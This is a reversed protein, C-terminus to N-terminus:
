VRIQSIRWMWLIGLAQLWVAVGVLTSGSSSAVFREFNAPDNQWMLYAIGATAAVFAFVSGRTPAAQTHIRRQVEVRDRVARSVVALSRELSGGARWQVSLALSFLRFSELPVREALGALAAEAEEGLRLRGALDLLLGRAPGRIASAARELAEVPSAGARLASSTLGIVEALGEELQLSRQQTFAAFALYVLVGAVAGAGTSLIASWQWVLCGATVLGAVVVAPWLRVRGFPRGRSARAARGEADGEDLRALARRRSGERRVLWVAGALSALVLLLGVVPFPDTM